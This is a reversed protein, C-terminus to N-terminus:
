DKQTFYVFLYTSLYDITNILRCHKLSDLLNGMNKQSKVQM